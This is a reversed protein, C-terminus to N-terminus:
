EKVIFEDLNLLVRAVTTWAALEHQDFGQGSRAFKSADLEGKTFRDLQQEHFTSLATLESESPERVLCLRFALRARGAFDKPGDRLVREALAAAAESFVADNLLALAQLPTNSRERRVLCNEGSPADFTVFAAYPSARKQYTYLGRRYRDPGVSTPWAPAGYALDAVGPPQPPFVSPGGLKQVLLGSASLATDRIVEAEVRVRPARGLLVNNPDREQLEPTVQPQQRYTASTVM